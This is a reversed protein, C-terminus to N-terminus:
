QILALCALLSRGGGEYGVLLASSYLAHLGFIKPDVDQCRSKSRSSDLLATVTRRSEDSVKLDRYYMAASEGEEEGRSKEVAIM